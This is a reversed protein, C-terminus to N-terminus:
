QIYEAPWWGYELMCSKVTLHKSRGGTAPDPYVQFIYPLDYSSHYGGTEGYAEMFPGLIDQNPKLGKPGNIRLPKMFGQSIRDKIVELGRSTHSIAPSYESAKYFGGQPLNTKVVLADERKVWPLPKARYFGEGEQIVTVTNGDVECYQGYEPLTSSLAANPMTNVELTNLMYSFMFLNIGLRLDGNLYRQELADFGQERNLGSQEADRIFMRGIRSARLFARSTPNTIEGSRQFTHSLGLYDSSIETKIEVVKGEEKWCYSTVSAPHYGLVLRNDYQHEQPTFCGEIFDTKDLLEQPWRCYHSCLLLGEQGEKPGSLWKVKLLLNFYNNLDMGLTSVLVKDGSPTFAEDSVSTFTATIVQTSM